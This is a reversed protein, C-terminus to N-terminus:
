QGEAGSDEQGEENNLKYEEVICIPISLKGKNYLATGHVEYVGKIGPLSITDGERPMRDQSKIWDSM